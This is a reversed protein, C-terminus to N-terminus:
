VKDSQFRLIHSIKAMNSFPGTMCIFFKSLTLSINALYFLTERFHAGGYELLGIPRASAQPELWIAQIGGKLGMRELTNGISCAKVFTFTVLVHTPLPTNMAPFICACIYKDNAPAWGVSIICMVNWSYVRRKGIQCNAILEPFNYKSVPM